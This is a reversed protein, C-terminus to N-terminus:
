FRIPELMKAADAALDPEFGAIAGSEDRFGFPQYDEKVGVVLLKSSEIDDLVGARSISPPLLALFFILAVRHM